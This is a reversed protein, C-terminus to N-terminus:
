INGFSAVDNFPCPTEGLVGFVDPIWPNPSLINKGCYKKYLKSSDDNGLYKYFM